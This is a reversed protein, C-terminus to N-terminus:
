KMVFVAYGKEGTAFLTGDKVEFTIADSKEVLVAKGSLVYSLTTEKFFDMYIYTKGEFPVTYVTGESTAPFYRRYGVGRLSSIDGDMFFPYAKRTYILEMASELVNKRIQPAGDYEPLYGAVFGMVINGNEDKFYDVIRDPPSDPNEWDKHAVMYDRPFPGPATSHPLSFDFTGEETEFPLLKPIYRYVGGRFADVKEQFMVGLSREFHVDRLKKHSFTYTITGDNSIRYVGKVHIMPEGAAKYRRFTYGGEPRGLRIAEVMAVPHVVDYEEHIEAGDYEGGFVYPLLKGDKEVYLDRKVYCNVPELWVNERVEGDTPIPATDTGNEIYALTGVPRKKFAYDDYSLGINESMLIIYDRKIELLTWKTGEEDKYLAGVDRIDKSHGPAYIAAAGPQGHNGGVHAGNVTLAPTEDNSIALPVDTHFRDWKQREILGAEMFDVPNNCPIDCGEMGRFKQVLDYKESFPTQFLVVGKAIKAVFM